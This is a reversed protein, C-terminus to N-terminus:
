HTHNYTHRLSSASHTHTLYLQVRLKLPATPCADVQFKTIVTIVREASREAALAGRVRRFVRHWEVARVGFVGLGCNRRATFSVLALAVNDALLLNCITVTALSRLTAPNPTSVDCAEDKLASQQMIVLTLKTGFTNFM